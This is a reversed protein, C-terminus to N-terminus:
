CALRRARLAWATGIALVFVVVAADPLGPGRHASPLVTWLARVLEATILLLAVAGLGRRSRRVRPSLLAFFPIVSHLLSILAM